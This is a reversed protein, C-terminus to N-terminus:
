GNLIVMKVETMERVSFAPGERTNGSDRFGGYPQQDARYTPVDNVVVGGFDLHRASRLAVDLRSTFIGAQLGFASDNALEIAEELDDYVIVCVVPGFVERNCVKMDNTVDSLITPTLIGDSTLQAGGLVRAGSQVAEDIWALVRECEKRSILSSVDTEEARPDGVRISSVEEILRRTFEPAIARHVYIRQTSICSQGAHSFGATKIKTAASEWDGDQEVIVPANNGLELGVRKKPARSRIAWGVDPSGTFTILSIKPHDVISNGVESGPGPLVHIWDAPLDCSEIMMRVLAISTLPTQGAPKLVVPCGAAIAPGIKHVVLNLPFNFPAIAGIVGIPVRLTFGIRGEGSISADMPIMEGTLSRAEAASFQLTSIARQVEVRAARIPKASEECVLQAFFESKAHLTAAARDLIEARKWAVLGRRLAGLASEVARNVDEASCDTTIGILHDDYPSRIERVRNGIYMEGALPTAIPDSSDLMSEFGLLM